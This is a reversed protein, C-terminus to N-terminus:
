TNVHPSVELGLFRAFVENSLLRGRPTLRLRDNQRELLGLASLERLTEHFATLATEGFRAALEHLDLGRNLRLGLFFSEELAQAASVPTATLPEGALYSDLSDPTSFRLFGRACGRVATGCLRLFSHADLGFGLYPERTWYKLNHRSEHGPRAFNSIEYQPIGASDLVSCAELYFDAIAEENPVFHAHYRTGGAILERGLRSDEDVELVYISVHPVGSTIAEELSARWSAASQHPLGAILDVNLNSIGAARLRAIDDLVTARTHLRGVAAAEGDVFSQVGLSVRNVGCDLLAELIAPSLTGPACEVTIEADPAVEFDERAARFLQRLQDPPLVSPTGGGLYISVVRREFECGLAAATGGARAMDAAVRGVYGDFQERSFVGSAFNCYSCKTKCFPVSIYLGISM